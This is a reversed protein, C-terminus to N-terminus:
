NNLVFGKSEESVECEYTTYSPKYPTSSSSSVVPAKVSSSKPWYGGDYKASSTSSTPSPKPVYDGYGYAPASSTPAASSSPAAPIYGAAAIGVFLALSYKM